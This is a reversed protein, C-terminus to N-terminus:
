EAAFILIEFLKMPLLRPIRRKSVLRFGKSGFEHEIDSISRKHFHKKFGALKRCLKYFANETPGSIIVTGGTQLLTRFRRILHDLDDIHELVDAAIIKSVSSDSLQEFESLEIIRVNRFKLLDAYKRAAATRIDTALVGQVLNALKPLLVGTGTGFDLAIDSPQFNSMQLITRLRELIIWRVFPNWHYYSPVAMEAIEDTTLVDPLSAKIRPDIAHMDTTTGTNL